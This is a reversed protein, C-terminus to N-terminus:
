GMSFPESEPKLFRDEDLGMVSGTGIAMDRAEIVEDGDDDLEVETKL